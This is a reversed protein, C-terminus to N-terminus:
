AAGHTRRRLRFWVAGGVAALGVAVAGAVPGVAADRAAGGGGAPPGGHPGGHHGGPYGHSPKDTPPQTTPPQTSPSGSPSPSGSSCDDVWFTKQKGPGGDGDATLFSLKYHGPPLEIDDSQATGDAEITLQGSAGADGSSPPQTVISWSATENPDFNFAALYFECVHPDNEQEDEDTRIDHIKIDGNTAAFAPAGTLTGGLVTLAALAAARAGARRPRTTVPM